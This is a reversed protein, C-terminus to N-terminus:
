NKEMCYILVNSIKYLNQYRARTARGNDISM